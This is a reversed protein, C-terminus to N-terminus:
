NTENPHVIKDLSADYLFYPLFVPPAGKRELWLGYHTKKEFFRITKIDQYPVTFNNGKNSIFTFAERDFIIQHPHIELKTLNRYPIMGYAILFIGLSFSPLGWNSLIEQRAFIGMGLLLLTGLSSFLVGRFLLHQKVRGKVTSFKKM